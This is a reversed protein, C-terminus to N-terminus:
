KLYPALLKMWAKSLRQYEAWGVFCQIERSAGPTQVRAGATSAAARAIRRGPGIPRFCTKTSVTKM